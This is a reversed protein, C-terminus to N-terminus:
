PRSQIAQRVLDHAKAGPIESSQGSDLAKARGVAVQTQEALLAEPTHTSAILREALDIRSDDSLSLAEEFMCAVTTTM